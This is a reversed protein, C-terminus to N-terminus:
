KIITFQKIIEINDQTLKLMYMGTPMDSVDASINYNGLDRFGTIINKIFKANVDYIDIKIFSAREIDLKLSLDTKVPNPSIQLDVRDVLTKNYWESVSNVSDVKGNYIITTDKKGNQSRDILLVLKTTDEDSKPEELRYIHTDKNDFKISTLDVEIGLDVTIDYKKDKGDNTIRFEKTDPSFGTQFDENALLQTNKIKISKQYNSNDVKLVEIGVNEANSKSNILIGNTSDSVTVVFPKDTIKQQWKVEAGYGLAFIRITNTDNSKAPIKEITYKSGSDTPIILAGFITLNPKDKLGGYSMLQFANPIASTSVSDLVLKRGFQDKITTNFNDSVWFSTNYLSDASLTFDGRKKPPTLPSEKKSILEPTSPYLSVNTLRFDKNGSVSENNITSLIFDNLYDYFVMLKWYNTNRDIVLIHNIQKPYNMNFGTWNNYVWITDVSRGSTVGSTVMYPVVSHGSNGWFFGLELSVNKKNASFQNRLYGALSSPSVFTSIANGTRSYQYQQKQNIKRQIEDAFPMDINKIPNEAIYNQLALVSFGSCSGEWIAAAIGQWRTM